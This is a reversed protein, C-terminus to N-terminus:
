EICFVPGQMLFKMQLNANLPNPNLRYITYIWSESYLARSKMLEPSGSWLLSYEAM